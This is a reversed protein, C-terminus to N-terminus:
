VDPAPHAFFSDPNAQSGCCSSAESEEQRIWTVEDFSGVKSDAINNQAFVSDLVAGFVKGLSNLNGVNYILPLPKAGYPLCVRLLEAPFYQAADSLIVWGLMASTSTPASPVSIEQWKM